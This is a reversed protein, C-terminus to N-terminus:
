APLGPTDEHPEAKSAADAECLQCLRIAEALTVTQSWLFKGVHKPMPERRHRQQQLAHYTNYEQKVIAPILYGILGKYRWVVGLGKEVGAEFLPGGLATFSPPDVFPLEVDDWDVDLWDNM